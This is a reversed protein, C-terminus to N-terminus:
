GTAPKVGRVLGQLAAARQRIDSPAAPDVVIMDLWRGASAGDNAKLAALALLERATHRFPSISALPELRGRITKEDANDMLLLAARLRALDQFTAGISSDNALADYARVGAAPDRKGTEAAAQLRALVQYGASGQSALTNLAALAGAADGKRSLELAAEFQASAAQRANARWTEFLRWGATALVIVIAIGLFAGQYRKWFEVARDRRVDEDVERFIDAM